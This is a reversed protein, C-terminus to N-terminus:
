ANVNRFKGAYRQSKMIINHREDPMPLRSMVAHVQFVFLTLFIYFLVATQAVKATKAEQLILLNRPIFAPSSNLDVGAVLEM